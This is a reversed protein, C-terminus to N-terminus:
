AGGFGKRADVSRRSSDLRWTNSLIVSTHPLRSALASKPGTEEGDSRRLLEGTMGDVWRAFCGSGGAPLIGKPILLGKGEEM